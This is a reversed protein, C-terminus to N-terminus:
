NPLIEHRLITVKTTEFRVQDDELDSDVDLGMHSHRRSNITAITELKLAQLGSLLESFEEEFRNAMDKM